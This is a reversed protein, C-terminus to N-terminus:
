GEQGHLVCDVFHQAAISLKRDKRYILNINSTIAPTIPVISVFDPQYHLTQREMLLSIGMGKAVFDLINELRHGTFVVNPTFGSKECATLCLEYLFTKEKLLVFDERMLEKLTISNSGSLPHTHPLLAVLTDTYYPITAFEDSAKEGERVFALECHDERLHTMLEETEAEIVNIKFNKNENRFQVIVDTIGYQAMVPISGISLTSKKNELQNYFATTYEYQIQLMKEAYPLFLQGFENLEVHRSTRNFLPAGLENELAKIHKSITSQTTFLREATGAFSRTEALMVFDRLHELEM